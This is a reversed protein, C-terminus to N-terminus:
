KDGEEARSPGEELFQENQDNNGEEEIIAYKALDEGPKVAKIDFRKFKLVFDGTEPIDGKKITLIDFLKFLTDLRKQQEDLEAMKKMLLDHWEQELYLITKLLQFLFHIM